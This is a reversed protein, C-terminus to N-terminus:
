GIKEHKSIYKQIFRIAFKPDFFSSHTNQSIAQIEKVTNLEEFLKISIYPPILDDKQGYLILTPAHIHKAKIFSNFPDKILWKVPLFPYQLQGIDILSTFPSQLVLGGVLYETAMQIAVGTGISEGYLVISQLSINQNCLFQIAARADQYFGKESPIGPNGNYGRYNVLLVGYGKNLFPRIIPISQGINGANGHFYVLTPIQFNLSPHYWAKLSLHDETTLTVIQMDAVGVKLPTLNFKNPYYIFSRQNFYYFLLISGYIGCIILVLLKLM